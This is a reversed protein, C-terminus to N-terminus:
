QLVQVQIQQPQFFSGGHSQRVANTTKLSAASFDKGQLRAVGIEGGRSRDHFGRVSRHFSPLSVIAVAASKRVQALRNGLLKAVRVAHIVIGGGFNKDRAPANVSVVAPEHDDEIWSVFNQNRIRTPRGM